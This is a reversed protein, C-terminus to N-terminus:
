VTQGNDWRVTPKQCTPKDQETVHDPVFIHKLYFNLIELKTILTRENQGAELLTTTIM